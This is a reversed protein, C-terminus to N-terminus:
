SQSIRLSRHRNQEEDGLRGDKNSCTSNFYIFLFLTHYIWDTTWTSLIWRLGTREGIIMWMCCADNNQNNRKGGYTSDRATFVNAASSATEPKGQQEVHQVNLCLYRTQGQNYKKQKYSHCNKLIARWTQMAKFSAHNPISKQKNILILKQNQSINDVTFLNVGAKFAHKLWVMWFTPVSKCLGAPHLCLVTTSNTSSQFIIQKNKLVRHQLNWKGKIRGRNGRQM